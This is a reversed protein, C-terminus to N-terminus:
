RAIEALVDHYTSRASAAAAPNGDAALSEILRQWLGDRYRDHRLGHQAARIAEAHDGSAARLGALQECADALAARLREREAVVWEAPGDDPLLDGDYAAIASDLHRAAAHEDRVRLAHQAAQLQGEFRRVDCDDDSDLTLRYGNADRRLLRWDGRAAGPELLRRLESVAVQLSHQSRDPDRGAWFWELMREKHVTRNAHLCLLRLVARHQPRLSDVGLPTGNLEVAFGGLCRVRLRQTTPARDPHAAQGAAPPLDLPLRRALRRVWVEAGCGQALQAVLARAGVAAGREAARAAVALLAITYPLPGLRGAARELEALRAQGYPRGARAAAVAAGVGAWTALAPAALQRFEEEALELTRPPAVVARPLAGLGAFLRLLAAGWRDGVQECEGVLHDVAGSDRAATAQLGHALRALMPAGLLKAAAVAEARAAEGNATGSMTAALARGLLAAAEVPAPVDRRSAIAGLADAADTLNGAVLHAFGVALEHRISTPRVTRLQEKPDVLVARAVHVWDTVVGLAPAMWAQLLRLEDAAVRCGGSVAFREDARRYTEAARELVGDALLRRALALLVWPDRDRIAAPLVDIWTGPDDALSEGGMALVQRV